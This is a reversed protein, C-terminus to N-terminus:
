PMFITESIPKILRLATIQWILQPIVGTIAASKHIDRECLPILGILEKPLGKLARKVVPPLNSTVIKSKM